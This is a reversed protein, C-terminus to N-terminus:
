YCSLRSDVCIWSTEGARGADPFCLCLPAMYKSLRVTGVTQGLQLDSVHRAERHRDSGWGHTLCGRPSGTDPVGTERYRTNEGAAGAQMGCGKSLPEVEDGM